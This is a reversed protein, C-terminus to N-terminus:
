HTQLRVYSNLRLEPLGNDATATVTTCNTYNYMAVMSDGDVCVKRKGRQYCQNATRLQTLKRQCTRRASRAGLSCTARWVCQCGLPPVNRRRRGTKFASCGSAIVCLSLVFCVCAVVERRLAAAQLRLCVCGTAFVCVCLTAAQLYTAAAEAPWWVPMEWCVQGILPLAFGAFRPIETAQANKPPLTESVPTPVGWRWVKHVGCSYICTQTKARAGDGGGGLKLSIALKLRPAIRRPLRRPKSM